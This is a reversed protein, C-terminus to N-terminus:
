VPQAQRFGRSRTHCQFTVRLTFKFIKFQAHEHSRCSSHWGALLGSYVVAMELPAVPLALAAPSLSPPPLPVELKMRELELELELERM